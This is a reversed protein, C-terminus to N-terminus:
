KNIRKRLEKLKLKLFIIDYIIRRFKEMFYIFCGGFYDWIIIYIYIGIIYNYVFLKNYLM